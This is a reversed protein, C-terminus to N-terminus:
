WPVATRVRVVSATWDKPARSDTDVDRYLAEMGLHDFIGGFGAGRTRSPTSPRDDLRPLDFVHTSFPEEAVLLMLWDTISEGPVVPQGAGVWFRVASGAAAWALSGADVAAAPFLSSSIRYRDTLDLIACYLKRDSTNRIRVHLRPPEWMGARRRYAAVHSGTEDPVLQRREGTTEDPLALLDLHVLGTLRTVGNGLRRMQSWRAIHELDRILDTAGSGLASRGRLPRGGDSATLTVNAPDDAHVILDPIVPPDAPAERVHPSPEGGPGAQALTKRLWAMVPPDARFEVTIPPMPVRHVVLPYETDFDPTWGIPEVLSRVPGIERLRVERLPQVGAQALVPADAAAVPLGHVAGADLEWAAQRFSMTLRSPPRRVISSLFQQDALTGHRPFYMPTQQPYTREVMCGAASLLERYTAQPGQRRLENLLAWTFAGCRQGGVTMELATQDRTCASLAVHDERPPIRGTREAEIAAAIVEQLISATAPPTTDIAAFREVAGAAALDRTGSESHCCDMVVAVHAGRHAVASILVALEKDYLDTVGDRRSDVCVISQMLRGNELHRLADPVPAQSGHGSFWFLVSDGESAQGLHSRFGEIVAARTAQEDLLCRIDAPRDLVGSRLYTRVSEIDYRCGHLERVPPQYRNIGVLLAYLTPAVM